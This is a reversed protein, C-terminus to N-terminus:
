PTAMTNHSYLYVTAGLWHEREDLTANALGGDAVIANFAPLWERRRARLRRAYFDRTM